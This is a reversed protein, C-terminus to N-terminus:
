SLALDVLVEEYELKGSKVAIDYDALKNLMELSLRKGASLINFIKAPEEQSLFIEELATIKGSVSSGSSIFNIFSFINPSQRYEGVKFLDSIEVPKGSFALGAKEVENIAGQVNNKFSDALFYVAQPSLSIGRSEAEMKLFARLKEGGLEEFKESLFAKSLLAKFAAPANKNESIILTVSKDAIFRKLFDKVGNEECDFVNKLIALKGSDFILMQGAFERLKEFEGEESLDFYERSFASHKKKYEEVIEDLRKKRRYSDPGYLFIIM